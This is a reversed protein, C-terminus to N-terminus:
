ERVLASQAWISFIEPEHAHLYQVGALFTYGFWERFENSASMRERSGDSYSVHVVHPPLTSSIPFRIRLQRAQQTHIFGFQTWVSAPSRYHPLAEGLGSCAAQWQGDGGVGVSWRKFVQGRRRCCLRCVGM